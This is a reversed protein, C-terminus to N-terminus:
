WIVRKSPRKLGWWDIEGNITLTDGGTLVTPVIGTLPFYGELGYFSIIGAAITATEKIMGVAKYKNGKLDIEVIPIMQYDDKGTGLYAWGYCSYM